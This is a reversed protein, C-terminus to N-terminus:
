TAMLRRGSLQEIEIRVVLTRNGEVWPEPIVSGLVARADPASLIEARGRALVSWGSRNFDDIDDVQLAVHQDAVERALRTYPSTRIWATDGQVRCNVPLVVPGEGTCWAVRAVERAELLEHCEATSLEVLRGAFWDTGQM